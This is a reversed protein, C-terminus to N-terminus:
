DEEKKKPPKKSVLSDAPYKVKMESRIGDVWATLTQKEADTLIANRHIWTYSSLPMEDEKIQKNVEELKRYQKGIPYSMFESFNLERKGDDIHNALWWGVPQVNAYWPYITNNSHCDYCAKNLIISVDSPVKYTSSIDTASIETSQNRSPRFFQIVVLLVIVVLLIKKKM